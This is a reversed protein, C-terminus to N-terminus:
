QACSKVLILNSAVFTRLNSLQLLKNCLNKSWTLTYSVKASWFNVGLSDLMQFDCFYMPADCRM